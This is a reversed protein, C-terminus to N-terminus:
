LEPPPPPPMEIGLKAILTQLMRNQENLQRQTEELRHQNEAEKKAMRRQTEDIRRAHEANKEALQQKLTAINEAVQGTSAARREGISKLRPLAGLGKVPEAFSAGDGLESQARSQTQTLAEVRSTVMEAREALWVAQSPPEQLLQYPEYARRDRPQGIRNLILEIDEKKVDKWTSTSILITDRVMKAFINLFMKGHDLIPKGTKECFKVELRDIKLRKLEKEVSCGRTEKRVRKGKPDHRDDGSNSGSTASTALPTSGHSSM